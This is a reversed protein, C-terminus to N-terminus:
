LISLKTFPGQTLSHVMENFMHRYGWMLATQAGAWQTHPMTLCRLSMFVSSDVSTKCSANQYMHDM